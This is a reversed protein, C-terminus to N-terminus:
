HQLIAPPDSTIRSNLDYARALIPALTAQVNNSMTVAMDILRYGSRWAVLSENQAFSVLADEGFERFPPTLETLWGCYEGTGYVDVPLGGRDWQCSLYLEVNAPV